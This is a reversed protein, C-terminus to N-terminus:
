DCGGWSGLLFALDAGDVSGDPPPLFTANSVIDAISGPNIGWEGLMYALDAGDVTGDGPPLFTGNTVLDALLVGGSRRLMSAPVIQKFVGPGSIVFQLGAGGGNEFFEIRLAHLGAELGRITEVEIMGHLGDNNILQEAGLYALSGDDSSVAIHYAGTEPIALYGTYVAGVEDSRGSGAFNGETSEYDIQSAVETAYPVLLDFNPVNQPNSLAYYAVDLGPQTCSPNEASRTPLVTVHVVADLVTGGSNGASYTFDDDGTFGGAPTYLLEDRGDPGTGSSLAISGGMTSLAEHSVIHAAACDGSLDNRLVDLRNSAGAAVHFFDDNPDPVGAVDLLDCSTENELYDLIRAIVTEHFRINMNSLGGPCQHCYSMLTGNEAGACNGTGCGDIQPNYSHTHPSGFNHGLEHTAVIIDWNFDSQMQTPYPFTGRLNASLSYNFGDSCLANLWAVGGGLSRGSLFHAIDRNVIEFNDEWYDRFQSLQASTGGQDWPDGADTWLHIWGIQLRTNVDRKFIESSGAILTAAYAVAAGTNGGFLSNTYEYDTEIAIRVIRCPPSGGGNGVDPAGMAEAGPAHPQEILETECEFGGLGLAEAALDDLKYAIPVAGAGVAGSTIVFTEGLRSVFGQTGFDSISLSVVSDPDDATRGVLITVDPMPLPESVIRKGQTRSALIVADDAFVDARHLDLVVSLQPTLVFDTLRVADVQRLSQMAAENPVLIAANIAQFAVPAPGEVRSLPSKRVFGAEADAHEPAAKADRQAPSRKAGQALAEQSLSTLPLLLLLGACAQVALACLSRNELM